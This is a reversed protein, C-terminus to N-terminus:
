RLIEVKPFAKKLVDLGSCQTESVNLLKLKKLGRLKAVGQDGIGRNGGLVLVELDHLAALTAVGTDTIPCTGLDLEKLKPFSKLLLLGRDTVQTVALNLVELSKSGKWQKLGDDNVQTYRANLVRLNPFRELSAFGGGRIGTYSVDLVELADHEALVEFVRDDIRTESLVLQKLGRLSQLQEMAATDVKPVAFLSLVEVEPVRSLQQLGVPTVLTRALSLTRVNKLAGTGLHSLGDDSIGTSGNLDLEGIQEADDNLRGLQALDDNTRQASPKQRFQAVIEAPSLAPPSAPQAAPASGGANGPATASPVPTEVPTAPTAGSQDLGPVSPLKDCGVGWVLVAAVLGVVITRRSCPPVDFTTHFRRQEVPNMTPLHFERNM